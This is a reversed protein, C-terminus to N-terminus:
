FTLHFNFSTLPSTQAGYCKRVAINVEEEQQVLEQEELLVVEEEAVEEKKTEKQQQQQLQSIHLISSDTTTLVTPKSKEQGEYPGHDMSASASSVPHGGDNDAEETAAATVTVTGGSKSPLVMMSSSSRFKSTYAYGLGEVHPPRDSIPTFIRPTALFTTNEWGPAAAGSGGATCRAAKICIVCLCM